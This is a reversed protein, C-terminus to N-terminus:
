GAKLWAAEKEWLDMLDKWDQNLCGTM